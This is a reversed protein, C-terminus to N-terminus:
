NNSQLNERLEYYKEMSAKNLKEKNHAYFKKNWKRQAELKQEKTFYKKKRGM